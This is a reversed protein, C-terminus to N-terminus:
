LHAAAPLTKILSVQAKDAAAENFIRMTEKLCGTCSPQSGGPLPIGLPLYYPYSDQPSSINTIANAFCYNNPPSPDRACGAKYLPEYTVLGSYAALVLPQERRYDAACNADQRLQTALTSMLPTCTQPMAKCTADLARTVTSLSKTVSFFSMSNQLLLSFPLCSTFTENRLFSNIFQPCSPSTYNNGLGTDFPRPLPSGSGSGPDTVISTPEASSSTSPSSSSGPLVVSTSTAAAPKATSTSSFRLRKEATTKATGKSSEEVSDQRRYLDNYMPMVPYRRDYVLQGPGFSALDPEMVERRPHKFAVEGRGNAPKTACLM